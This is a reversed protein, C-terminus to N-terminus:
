KLYKCLENRENEFELRKNLNAMIDMDMGMDMVTAVEAEAGPAEVM